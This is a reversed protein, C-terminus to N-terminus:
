FILDFHRQKYRKVVRMYYIKQQLHELIRKKRSDNGSAFENTITILDILDTKKNYRMLNTLNNFRVHWYYFTEIQCENSFTHEGIADSTSIVLVLQVFKIIESILVWQPKELNKKIEDYINKFYVCEKEKLLQKLLSIQAWLKDNYIDGSYNVEFLSFDSPFHGQTPQVCEM